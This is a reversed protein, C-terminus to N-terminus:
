ALYRVKFTARWRETFCIANTYKKRVNMWAMSGQSSNNIELVPSSLGIVEGSCIKKKFSFNHWWTVVEKLAPFHSECLSPPIPCRSTKEAIPSRPPWRALIRSLMQVRYERGTSDSRGVYRNMCKRCGARSFVGKQQLGRQRPSTTLVRCM